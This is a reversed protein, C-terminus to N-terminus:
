AELRDRVAQLVTERRVPKPLFLNMGAQTARERTEKFVNASLGIVWPQTPTGEVRQRLWRTVEIGDRGPMEVDMFIVDYRNRELLECAEDGDCAFAIQQYGGMELMLGVVRRNTPNDDVVLISAPDSPEAEPEAEAADHVGDMPDVAEPATLCFEFTSGQGEVSQVEIGGGLAECLRRCIALGLGTGGYNRTTSSDVQSFPKFLRDLSDAAIGIGTDIVRGILRDPSQYDLEVQVSGKATFKVANGVLNLLIQRLRARDCRVFPPLPGVVEVKLALDKGELRSRMMDVVDAAVMRPDVPEVSLELRGAEIKSIDLVDNIVELLGEGSSEIMRVYREQAGDLETERLLSTFGIVANMPTRIEHSMVALFDSKARDASEATEKAQRLEAESHKFETIEVASVIVETVAGESYRPQLQAVYWLENAADFGEYTAAQGSWAQEYAARVVTVQDAPLFDELAKGEVAEASWGLRLALAGRCLTHVFRGQERRFCLIMGQQLELTQEYYRTLDQLRSEADHRIKENAATLEESVVELTREVFEREQDAQVYAADVAELFDALPGSTVDLGVLKKRIQRALLPHM